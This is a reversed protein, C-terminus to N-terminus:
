RKGLIEKQKKIRKNQKKVQKKVAGEQTTSFKQGKNRCLIYFMRTKTPLIISSYGGAFLDGERWLLLRLGLREVEKMRWFFCALFSCGCGKEGGRNSLM